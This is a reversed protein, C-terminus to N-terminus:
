RPLSCTQSASMTGGPKMMVGSPAYGPVAAIVGGIRKVARGREEISQLAAATGRGPAAHRRLEIASCRNQLGYTAPELGATPEM